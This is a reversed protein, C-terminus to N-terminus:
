SIGEHNFCVLDIMAFMKAFSIFYVSWELSKNNKQMVCVNKSMLNFMIRTVNIHYIHLFFNVSLEISKNNKQLM